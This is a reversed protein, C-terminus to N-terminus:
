KSLEVEPFTYGFIIDPVTPDTLVEYMSYKGWNEEPAKGEKGGWYKGRKGWYKGEKGRVKGGINGRDKGGIHM